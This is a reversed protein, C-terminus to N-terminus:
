EHREGTPNPNNPQQAHDFLWAVPNIGADAFNLRFGRAPAAIAVKPVVGAYRIGPEISMNKSGAPVRSCAHQKTATFEIFERQFLVGAPLTRRFCRLIGVEPGM